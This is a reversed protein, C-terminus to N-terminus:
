QNYPTIIDYEHTLVNIRMLELFGAREARGTDPPVYEQNEENWRHCLVYIYNGDAIFQFPVREKRFEDTVDFVLEPEGGAKPIRYFDGTSTKYDYGPIMADEGALYYIYDDTCRITKQPDFNLGDVLTEVSFDDWSIRIIREGNASTTNAYIYDDETLDATYWGGSFPLKEINAPDALSMRYHAAGISYYVSAEDAYWIGGHQAFELEKLLEHTDSPLHIRFIGKLSNEPDDPDVYACYYRYDGFYVSNPLHYCQECYETVKAERIDFSSASYHTIIDFKGTAPNKVAQHRIDDYYCKGDHFVMSKMHDNIGCATPSKHDCLPDPCLTTLYGTEPNFRFPLYGWFIAYIIGNEYQLMNNFATPMVLDHARDNSPTYEYGPRINQTDGTSSDSLSDVVPATEIERMGSDCAALILVAALLLSIVTKKM